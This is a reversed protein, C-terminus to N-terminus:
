IKLGHKGSVRAVWFPPKKQATADILITDPGDSTFLLMAWYLLTPLYTNHILAYIALGASGKVRLKEKLKEMHGEITRRSVKQIDAIFEPIHCWDYRKKSHRDGWNLDKRKKQLLKGLSNNKRIFFSLRM